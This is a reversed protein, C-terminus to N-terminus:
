DKELFNQANELRHNEAEGMVDYPLELSFEHHKKASQVLKFHKFTKVSKGEIVIGLKVVRNIGSIQQEAINKSNYIKSTPQNKWLDQSASKPIPSKVQSGIISGATQATSAINQAKSVNKKVKEPVKDSMEKGIFSSAKEGINKSQTSDVNKKSSKNDQFM